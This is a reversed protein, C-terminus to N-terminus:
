NFQIISKCKSTFGRYTDPKRVLIAICIGLIVLCICPTPSPPPNVSSRNYVKYHEELTFTRKGLRVNVENHVNNMYEVLTYRNKLADANPNPLTRKLLELFHRSCSPCPLHLAFLYLFDYVRHREEPTPTVPFTHAIVHLTNWACPGWNTITLGMNSPM